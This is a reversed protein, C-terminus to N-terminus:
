SDYDLCHQLCASTDSVKFTIIMLQLHYHLHLLWAFRSNSHSIICVNDKQEREEADEVQARYCILVVFEKIM